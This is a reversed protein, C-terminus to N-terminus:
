FMICSIFNNIVITTSLIWDILLWLFHCLFDYTINLFIDRRDAMISLSMSWIPQINLGLMTDTWHVLSKNRAIGIITNRVAVILILDFIKVNAKYFQSLYLTLNAFQMYWRQFLLMHQTLYLVYLWCIPSFILFDKWIICFTFCKSLMCFCCCFGSRRILILFNLTTGLISITTEASMGFNIINGLSGPKFCAMNQFHRTKNLWVKVGIPFDSIFGIPTRHCSGIFPLDASSTALM